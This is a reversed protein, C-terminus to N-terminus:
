EFIFTKKNNEILECNCSYIVNFAMFELNQNLFFYVRCDM